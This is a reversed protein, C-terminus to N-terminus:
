TVEAALHELPEKDDFYYSGNSLLTFIAPQNNNKIALSIPTKNLCMM